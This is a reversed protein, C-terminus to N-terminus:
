AAAIHVTALLGPGFYPSHPALSVGHAAAAEAIARMGSLGVKTVSPQAYRVAGAAFMAKFEFLTVINEGAAVPIQSAKAVQALGPIDEPPWVPEELWGIDCGRMTEAFAIAEAPHWPCNVDLFIPVSPPAADRGARVIAPDIEHLKVARYGQAVARAVNRAVTGADGYRLLSAYSPVKRRDGDGLLRHLPKGAIKGAIDWLAIDVGAIGFSTPGNRGYNHLRRSLLANLGALDRVDYGICLPAIVTDIAAKTADVLNFGFAEGWGVLGGEAEVRTLLTNMTSLRLNGARGSSSDDGHTFPVRVITTQVTIIKM